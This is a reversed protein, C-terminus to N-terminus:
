ERTNKQCLLCLNLDMGSSLLNEESRKREDYYTELEYRSNLM